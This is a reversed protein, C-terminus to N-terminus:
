TAPQEKPLLKVLRRSFRSQWVRSGQPLLHMLDWYDTTPLPAPAQLSLYPAHYRRALRRCGAQYAARAKDLGHGVVRVDLPLDVLVPRLGRDRCLALLRDLAVFNAGLNRHFGAWRRRMWRPVLEQKRALSLPARDTYLHQTWRHLVPPEGPSPPRVKAPRRDIPPGIFRSLGVGILAIGRPTHAGRPPMAAIFQGDMGFTQGHSALTFVRTATTRGAAAALRRLQLTWVADRVTSERATSDGLYFIPTGEPQALQVLQVVEWGHRWEGTGEAFATAPLALLLTLAGLVLLFAARPSSKPSRPV